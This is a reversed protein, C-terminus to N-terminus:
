FLACDNLIRIRFREFNKFGYAQRKLTKIKNNMGETFANTYPLAFYNLIEERWKELAWCFRKLHPTAKIMEFLIDFELEAESRRKPTDYFKMFSEKLLCADKLPKSIEFLENLKIKQDASLDNYRKRILWYASRIKKQNAKSQSKRYAAKRVRELHKLLTRVLHFKDIVHLAKPFLRRTWDNLGLDMDHVMALVKEREELGYQDFFTNLADWSKEELVDWLRKVKGLDTLTLHMRVRRKGSFEDIGLVLPLDQKKFDNAKAVARAYYISEVEKYGIGEKRSTGSLSSQHCKDEIYARYRKTQRKYKELFCFEEAFPKCGNLCRFRRKHVLLFVKKGHASLDRVQSKWSDHIQNTVKGCDLCLAFDRKGKVEILLQDKAEKVAMVKLEPIGLSVKINDSRLPM